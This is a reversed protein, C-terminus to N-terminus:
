KLEGPSVGFTERFARYFVSYDRFGCEEAAKSASAGERILRAANLLRMQRVYAHVTYGTQTKFLRMFYYKSLYVYEAVEEVSLDRRLNENIYAIARSVKPDWGSVDRSQASGGRRVMRNLLVLLELMGADRLVHSGFEESRHADDMRTILAGLKEREESSTSVRHGGQRDALRFCEMLEEGPFHRDAFRGDLYVVVRDYPVERDILARHITHQKVFLVDWPQLAYTVGEVTYDVRGSLLIVLKDFDHFHFDREQGATDRLHFWRYNEHLYGERPFSKAQM